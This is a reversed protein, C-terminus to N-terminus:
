FCLPLFFIFLFSKWIEVYTIDKDSRQWHVYSRRLQTYVVFCTGFLTSAFFHEITCVDFFSSLHLFIFIFDNELYGSCLTNFKQHVRAVKSCRVLSSHIFSCVVVQIIYCENYLIPIYMLLTPMKDFEIYKQKALWGHCLFLIKIFLSGNECFDGSSNNYFAKIRAPSPEM